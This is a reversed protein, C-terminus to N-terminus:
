NFLDKFGTKCGDLSVIEQMIYQTQIYKDSTSYSLVVRNLLEKTYLIMDLDDLIQLSSHTTM